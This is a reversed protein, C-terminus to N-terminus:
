SPVWFFTTLNLVLIGELTEISLFVNEQCFSATCWRFFIRPVNPNPFCGYEDGTVVDLGIWYKDFVSHILLSIIPRTQHNHLRPCCFCSRWGSSLRTAMDKGSQWQAGIHAQDQLPPRHSLVRSVQPRTGPLLLVASRRHGQFM